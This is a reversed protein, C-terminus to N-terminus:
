CNCSIFLHGSITAMVQAGVLNAKGTIIAKDGDLYIDAGM